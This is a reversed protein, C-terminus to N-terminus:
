VSTSGGRSTDLRSRRGRPAPRTRTAAGDRVGFPDHDEDAATRARNGDARGSSRAPGPRAGTKKWLYPAFLLEKKPAADLIGYPRPDRASADGAAAVLQGTINSSIPSCTWPRDAARVPARRPGAEFRSTSVAITTNTSGNASSRPTSPLPGSFWAGISRTRTRGIAASSREMPRPYGRPFLRTEFAKPDHFKM